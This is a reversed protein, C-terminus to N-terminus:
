KVLAASTWHPKSAFWRRGNWLFKGEYEFICGYRVTIEYTADPVSIRFDGCAYQGDQGILPKQELEDSNFERQFATPSERLLQVLAAKAEAATLARAPRLTRPSPIADIMVSLVLLCASVVGIVVIPRVHHLHVALARPQQGPALEPPSLHPLSALQEDWAKRHESRLDPQPLPM